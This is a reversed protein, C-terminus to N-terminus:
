GAFSLKEVLGHLVSLNFVEREEDPVNFNMFLIGGDATITLLYHGRLYVDYVVLDGHDREMITYEEMKGERQIRILETRLNEMCDNGFPIGFGPWGNCFM